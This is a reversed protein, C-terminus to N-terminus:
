RLLPGVRAELLSVLEAQMFRYQDPIGLCVLKKDRLAGGFRSNLLRLHRKEMVCVLDAWALQEASLPTEADAALGASDTEIGPWAAFVTEATPSRWRNRSCIFLVRIM